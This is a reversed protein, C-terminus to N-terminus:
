VKLRYIEQQLCSFCTNDHKRGDRNVHEFEIIKAKYAFRLPKEMILTEYHTRQCTDCCLSEKEM